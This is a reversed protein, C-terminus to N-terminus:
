AVLEWANEDIHVHLGRERAVGEVAARVTEWLWDDGCVRCTPFTDLLACIDARVSSEDHAADVYALDPAIAFDAVVRIGTTTLLRLPTIRDRYHWCSALFTRYLDRLMAKLEPDEHHEASGLWHDVAIVRVTPAIECLYRTSLGTWSGLELIHTPQVEEVVRRLLRRNGEGMWGHSSIPVMPRELPWPYVQRLREWPEM